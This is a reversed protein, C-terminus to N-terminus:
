NRFVYRNRTIMIAEYMPVAGICRTYEHVVQIILLYFISHKKHLNTWFINLECSGAFRFKVLHIAIMGLYKFSVLVYKTSPTIFRKCFNVEAILVVIPALTVNVALWVFYFLTSGFFLKNELCVLHQLIFYKKALTCPASYICLQTSVSTYVKVPLRKMSTLLSGM